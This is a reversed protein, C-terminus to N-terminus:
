PSAPAIHTSPSPPSAQNKNQVTTAETHDTSMRAELADKRFFVLAILLVIAVGLVLGLKADNSM